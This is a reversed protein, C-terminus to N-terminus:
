TRVTPRETQAEFPVTLTVRTGSGEASTVQLSGGLIQARERMGLIGLGSEQSVAPSFGRGDDSISLQIEGGESKVEVVVHAAESHKECNTLAEQVTRYACMRVTEPLTRDDEVAYKLQCVVSTRRSFEQTLWQLAPRLGLDDLVAPRLLVSVNRITRLAEDAHSRARQLRIQDDGEGTVRIHALEMKMATIIQGVGDHLERSLKKREEEQVTLLHASGLQGEGAETGRRYEWLAKGAILAALISLVAVVPAANRSATPWAAQLINVCASLAALVLASVLYRGATQGQRRIGM